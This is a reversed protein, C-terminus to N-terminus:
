FIGYIFCVKLSGFVERRTYYSIGSIFLNSCHFRVLHSGSGFRFAVVVEHEGVWPSTSEQGVLGIPHAETLSVSPIPVSPLPVDTLHVDPLPVDHLPVDRLSDGGAWDSLLQQGVDVDVDVDSTNGAAEADQLTPVALRPNQPTV